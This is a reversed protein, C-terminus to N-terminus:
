ECFVLKKSKFNHYIPHNKKMRANENLLFLRLL